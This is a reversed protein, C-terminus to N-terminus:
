FRNGTNRKKMDALSFMDKGDIQSLDEPKGHTLVIEQVPAKAETKPQNTIKRKRIVKVGYNFDGDDEKEEPVDSFVFNM